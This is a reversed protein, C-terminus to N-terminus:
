VKLGNESLSYTNIIILIQSRVLSVPSIEEVLWRDEWREFEVWQVYACKFLSLCGNIANHVNFEPSFRGELLIEKTPELHINMCQSRMVAPTPVTIASPDESESRWIYDWAKKVVNRATKAKVQPLIM